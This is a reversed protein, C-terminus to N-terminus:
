PAEELWRMGGSLTVEARRDDRQAFARGQQCQGAKTFICPTIWKGKRDIYGWLSGQRVAAMGERFPTVEDWCCPTLEKGRYDLFGWRYSGMRKDWIAVPLAHETSLNAHDWVCPVIEKGQSDIFGWKGNKSVPCRDNELKMHSDFHGVERGSRHILIEKGQELVWAHDKHFAHAIEWRCPIVLQGATDIYGWKGDRCVAALGERFRQAGEWLCPIVLEMQENLYGWLGGKAVPSFGESFDGALDWQLPAAPQGDQDLFGAKTGDSVLFLDRRSSRKLYIWRPPTLIEGRDTMLGYGNLCGNEKVRFLIRDDTCLIREAINKEELPVFRGRSDIRHWLSGERVYAFGDLFVTAEEWRCPIVIEEKGNAYGWKGERCVPTSALQERPILAGYNGVSQYNLWLFPHIMTGASDIEGWKGDSDRRALIRLRGDPSLKTTHRLNAWQCPLVEKGNEDILGWYGGRVVRAFGQSLPRIASWFSDGVLQGTEDALGWKGDIKVMWLKDSFPRKEEATNM